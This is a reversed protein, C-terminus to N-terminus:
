GYGERLVEASEKCAVTTRWSGRTLSGLTEPRFTQRKHFMFIATFAQLGDFATPVTLLM